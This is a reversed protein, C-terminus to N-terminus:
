IEFTAQNLTTKDHQRQFKPPWRASPLLTFPELHEPERWLKCSTKGYVRGPGVDEWLVACFILLKLVVSHNGRGGHIAMVKSTLRSRSYRSSLEASLPYSGTSGEDDIVNVLM